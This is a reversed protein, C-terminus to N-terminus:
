VCPVVHLPPQVADVQILLQPWQRVAEPEVKPKSPQGPGWPSTSELGKRNLPLIVIERLLPRPFVTAFSSHVMGLAHWSLRCQIRTAALQGWQPRCQPRITCKLLLEDDVFNAFFSLLQFLFQSDRKGRTRGITM